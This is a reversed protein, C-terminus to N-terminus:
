EKVLLAKAYKGHIRGILRALHMSLIFVLIGLIAVFPAAWDPLYYDASGTMVIPLDLITVVFPAAFFGVGLSLFTISITFYLIGIPLQLVMYVMTAWSRKDSVLSKFREWVSLDKRSFVPRRPMRVGLLAEVMRGEVLAIGQISLLFLAFFPLGIILVIFGATLSLGTVAWTFYIIGTVLSFFMYFLAAWARPELIVGFFRSVFPRGNTTHPPAFFPTIRAEIEKYAAAIEAPAGYESLVSKLADNESLDPREGRISEYATRLHEEADALADRIVASDSGKLERRLEELYEEITNPM